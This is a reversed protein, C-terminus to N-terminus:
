LRKRKGGKNKNKNSKKALKQILDQYRHQINRLVCNHESLRRMHAGVATVTADYDLPSSWQFSSSSTRSADTSGDTKINDQVEKVVEVEEEDVEEKSVTVTISNSSSSGDEEDKNGKNGDKRPTTATNPDSNAHDVVVVVLDKVEKDKTDSDSNNNNIDKPM